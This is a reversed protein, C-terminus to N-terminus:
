LIRRTKFFHVIHSAQTFGTVLLVVVQVVPWYFTTSHMAAFQRHMDTDRNKAYDAQRQITQMGSEIRSMEQEIYSLHSNVDAPKSPVEQPHLIQLAYRFIDRPESNHQKHRPAQICINAIGNLEM